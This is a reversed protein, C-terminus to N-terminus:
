PDDTGAQDSEVDFAANRHRCSNSCAAPYRALGALDGSTANAGDHAEEKPQLSHCRGLLLEQRVRVVAKTCVMARAIDSRTTTTVGSYKRGGLFIFPFGPTTNEHESLCNVKLEETGM